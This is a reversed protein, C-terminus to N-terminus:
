AARTPGSPFRAYIEVYGCARCRYASLPITESSKYKIGGFFARIAEGPAWVSQRVAGQALDPIHGRDMPRECKPCRPHFDAM